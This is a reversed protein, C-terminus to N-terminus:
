SELYDNIMELITREDDASIGLFPRADMRVTGFQHYVGYTESVGVSVSHKDAQYAISEELRGSEVLIGANDGKKNIKQRITSSKLKAWYSGDPAHKQAFRQRTGSELEGGIAEMLPTLDGNLKVKLQNIAQITIGLEDLGTVIIATM